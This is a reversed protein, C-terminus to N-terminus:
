RQAEKRRKESNERTLDPFMADLELVNGRSSLGDVESACDSCVLQGDIDIVAERPCYECKV